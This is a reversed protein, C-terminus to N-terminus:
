NVFVSSLESDNRKGVDLKLKKGNRWLTAKFYTMPVVGSGPEVEQDAVVYGGLYVDNGKVFVSRFMVADRVDPLDQLVGNKWLRASGEIFGDAGAVYVDSGSVYVSYACANKGANTLNIVNGDRWLKAGSDGYGAVYVEEGSVFVSQASEGGELDEAVGNKWLKAQKQIRGAIYVDGDSVFISNAIRSFLLVYDGGQSRIDINEAIMEAKGNKWVIINATYAIEVIEYGLVYVDDGSVFVSLAMHDFDRNDLHQVVGNKWLRARIPPGSAATLSVYGVVFVDNGSVYVSTAMSYFVSGDTESTRVISGANKTFTQLVGNKWVKAVPNGQADKEFGAAYVNKGEPYEGMEDPPNDKSGCGALLLVAFLLYISSLKVENLM